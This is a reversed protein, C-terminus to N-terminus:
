LFRLGGFVRGHSVFAMDADWSVTFPNLLLYGEKIPSGGCSTKV